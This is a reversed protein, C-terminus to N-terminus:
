EVFLMGNEGGFEDEVTYVDDSFQLWERANGKVHLVKYEYAGPKLDLQASYTNKRKEILTIGTQDWNNFDGVLYLKGEGSYHIEVQTDGNSNQDWDPSIRSGSRGFKPDILMRVGGSVQVDRTDLNLASNSRQLGEATVFVSFTENVPLTGTLGVRYIRDAETTTTTSGGGPPGGIPLGGPGSTTTTTEFRYQELGATLSVSSGNKFSRTLELGSSFQQQFSPLADLSGYISAGVKWNYSPWTEFELGYIDYRTTSNQGTTFNDYSQFNSGAKMTLSTFISPFWTVFPQGWFSSRNYTGSFYSGGGEVGLSWSSSLKRTYNAVGMGGKWTYQGSFLPEVVVGASLDLVNHEGYFSSQMFGSLLGYGSNLSPDWEAFFPNLYSNSSYGVRSEVSFVTQNNQAQTIVPISLLACMLTVTNLRM